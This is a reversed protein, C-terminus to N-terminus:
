GADKWGFTAFDYNFSGDDFLDLLAYGHDFRKLHLGRWWNASVAGTTIYTVGDFTVRENLHLHGGLCLKVNGHERFLTHVARGDLLMSNGPVELNREPTEKGATFMWAPSIVPIHTMVLVPTGKTTAALDNKLWDVQERGLRAKYVEKTPEVSDLAIFHWGHSDFSYYPKALGLEDMAWRKGWLQETGDTGSKQKNLGWCDHNGIAHRMPVSCENKLVDKWLDWQVKTRASAAGMADMICDGTNLILQPKDAQGQLHHLCQVFGDRARLEPQLHVDTIHAVRCSRRARQAAQGRRSAAAAVWRPGLLGGSILAVTKLWRRRTHLARAFGPVDNM